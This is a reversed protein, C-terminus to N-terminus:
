LSELVEDFVMLWFTLTKLFLTKTNKKNKIKQPPVGIYWVAVSFLELLKHQDSQM